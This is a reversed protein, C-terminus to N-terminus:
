AERHWIRRRVWAHYIGTEPTYNSGSGIYITGQIEVGPSSGIKQNRAIGTLADEIAQRIKAVDIAGSAGSAWADFQFVPGALKSPGQHSEVRMGNVEFFTVAPLSSGEPRTHLYVRSSVLNTITPKSILYPRIAQELLM